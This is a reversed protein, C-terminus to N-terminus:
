ADQRRLDHSPFLLLLSFGTHRIELVVTISFNSWLSQLHEFDRKGGPQNVALREEILALTDQLISAWM